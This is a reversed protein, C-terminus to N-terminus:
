DKKDFTVRVTRVGTGPMLALKETHDKYGFLQYELQHDGPLLKLISPTSGHFEGDILIDAGMPDSFCEVTIYEAPQAPAVPAEPAVVPAPPQASVAPPAVVPVPPVPRTVPVPKVAKPKKSAPREAPAPTQVHTVAPPAAVPAVPADVAPAVPAPPTAIVPAGAVDLSLGEDLYATFESGKSAGLDSGVRSEVKIEDKAANGKRQPSCRLKATKLDPLRVGEIDFRLSKGPKASQVAGWVVSGEPIVVMGNLMVPRAVEFDVRSGETAQSSLLDAKLRAHLPTGDALHVTAAPAWVGACALVVAALVAQKFRM